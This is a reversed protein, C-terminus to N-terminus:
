PPYSQQLILGVLLSRRVLVTQGIWLISSLLIWRKFSKHLHKKKCSLVVVASVQEVFVPELQKDERRSGDDISAAISDITAKAKTIPVWDGYYIPVNLFKGERNPDSIKLNWSDDAADVSMLLILLFAQFM